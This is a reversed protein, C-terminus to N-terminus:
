VTWHYLINLKLDPNLSRAVPCNNGVEELTNKINSQLSLDSPFVIKIDVGGIRRPNGMMNKTVELTTNLLDINLEEAKIAMTTIICTALSVCLLDTPSFKEGKGKNDTPADTEITIGSQVHIAQCRFNGQYIISSTMIYNQM